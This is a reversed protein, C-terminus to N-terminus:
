ILNIKSNIISYEKCAEANKSYCGKGLLELAKNFNQRVAIGKAYFMELSICVFENYGLDCGMKCYETAEFNNRGLVSVFGIQTCASAIGHRCPEQYLKLAKEYNQPVALGYLYAEVLKYYCQHNNNNCEEKSRESDRYYKM